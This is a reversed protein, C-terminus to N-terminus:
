KALLFTKLRFKDSCVDSECSVLFFFFSFSAVGGVLVFSPSIAFPQPPILLSWSPVPELVGLTDRDIERDRNVRVSSM